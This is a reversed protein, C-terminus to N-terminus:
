LEEEEEIVEDILSERPVEIGLYKLIENEIETQAVGGFAAQSLKVITELNTLSDIESDIQTMESEEIGVDALLDVVEVLKKNFIKNATPSINRDIASELNEKQSQLQTAGPTFTKDYSIMINSALRSIESFLTFLDEETDEATNSYEKLKDTNGSFEYAYAVGSKAEGVIPVAGYQRAIDDLAQASDNRSERAQSMVNADPSVFQVDRTSEEDVWVVNGVVVTKDPKMGPIQLITFNTEREIQRLESTKNFVTKAMVCLDYMAPIPMIETGTMIVPLGSGVSKVKDTVLTKNKGDADCTFDYQYSADIHRYVKKENGNEDKITEYYFEIWVLKGFEDKKYDYVETCDKYYFYPYKREEIAEEVREPTEKYNDVVLFVNALLAHWTIVEKMKKDLSTGAGDCNQIFAEELLNSETREVENSFVPTVLSDVIAGVQNEYESYKQREAFSEEERPFPCLYSKDYFGGTGTYADICLQHM